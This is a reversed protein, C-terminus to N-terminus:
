YGLLPPPVIKLINVMNAMPNTFIHQFIYKSKFMQVFFVKGRKIILIKSRKYDRVVLILEMRIDGVVM